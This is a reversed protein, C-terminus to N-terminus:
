FCGYKAEPLLFESDNFDFKWSTTTVTVCFKLNNLPRWISTTLICHKYCRIKLVSLKAMDEPM